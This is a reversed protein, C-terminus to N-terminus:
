RNRDKRKHLLRVVVIALVAFIVVGSLGTWVTDNNEACGALLLLSLALLVTM